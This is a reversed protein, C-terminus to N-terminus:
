LEFVEVIGLEVPWCLQLFQYITQTFFQLSLTKEVHRMATSGIEVTGGVYWDVFNDRIQVWPIQVCISEKHTNKYLYTVELVLTTGEVATTSM